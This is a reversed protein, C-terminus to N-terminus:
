KKNIIKKALQILEEESITGGLDYRIDGMEWIIYNKYSIDHGIAILAENGLVDINKIEHHENDISISESASISRYTLRVIQNEENVLTIVKVSGLNDIEKIKYEKPIINLDFEKREIDVGDPHFEFKTHDEFWEIIIEVRARVDENFVFLTTLIGMIILIYMAARKSYRIFNKLFNERKDKKFLEKMQKQFNLSPFFEESSTTNIERKLERTIAKKLLKEFELDIIEVAM